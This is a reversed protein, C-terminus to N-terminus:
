PVPMIVICSREAMASATWSATSLIGEEWSLPLFTQMPASPEHEEATSLTASFAASIYMSLFPRGSFTRLSSIPNTSLPPSSTRTMSGISPVDFAM